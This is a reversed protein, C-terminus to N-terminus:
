GPEVLGGAVTWGMSTALAVDEQTLPTTSKFTITKKTSVQELGGMFVKASEGTLPCHGLQLNVKIGTIPGTVTTLKSCSRFMNEMNNVNSFNCQSLNLTALSSCNSLMAEMTTLNTIDFGGLDLTTLHDCGMFMAEMSTVKSTNWNSLNITTLSPCTAFMYSMTKVNSTDFMSLNLSTLSNCALFMKHMSTVNSTDFGSFDLATLLMGSDFMFSMDTVKSTDINSFTISTLTGGCWQFMGRLSTVNTTKLSIDLTTLPTAKFMESLDTVEDVNDIAVVFSGDAKPTVAYENGDIKYNFEQSAKGSFGNFSADAPLKYVYPFVGLNKLRYDIYKVFDEGKGEMVMVSDTNKLVVVKGDVLDGVKIRSINETTVENYQPISLKESVKELTAKLANRTVIKNGNEM